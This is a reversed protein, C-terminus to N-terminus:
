IELLLLEELISPNKPGNGDNALKVDFEDVFTYIQAYYDFNAPQLRNKSDPSARGLNLNAATTTDTANTDGFGM